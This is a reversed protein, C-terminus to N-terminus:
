DVFGIKDLKHFLVLRREGNDLIVQVKHSIDDGPFRQSDHYVIGQLGDETKVIFGPRKKNM